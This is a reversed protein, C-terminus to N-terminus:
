NSNVYPNIPKQMYAGSYPLTGQISQNPALSKFDIPTLPDISEAKPMQVGEKGGLASAGMSAAQTLQGFGSAKQQKGSNYQSSLANIDGIERAEQLQRIRVNDDAQAQEIAKRQMDLDAAIKQNVDQNMAQVKGLGGILSRSGANALTNVSNSTTRSAEERQLDAGLRSVQMGEAVNTFKQREYNDLADKAERAQKAGEIMNVVGGIAGIGAGVAQGAVAGM